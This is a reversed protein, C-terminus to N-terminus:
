GQRQYLVTGDDQTVGYLNVCRHDRLDRCLLDAAIIYKAAETSALCKYRGRVNTVELKSSALKGFQPIIGYAKATDLAASCLAITAEANVQAVEAASREGLGPEPAARPWLLYAAIGNAILLGGVITILAAKWEWGLWARAGVSAENQSM